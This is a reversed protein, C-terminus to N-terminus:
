ACHFDNADRNGDDLTEDDGEKMITLNCKKFISSIPNSDCSKKLLYLAKSHSTEQLITKCGHVFWQGHFMRFICGKKAEQFFYRIQCFRHHHNFLSVLPVRLSAYWWRNGYKNITQSARPTKENEAPEVM